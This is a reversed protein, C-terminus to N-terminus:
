GDQPLDLGEFYENFERKAVEGDSRYAFCTDLLAPRPTGSAHTKFSRATGAKVTQFATVAMPGMVMDSIHTCGKSGGSRSIVERRWGPQIKSGILAKYSGAAGTCTTYPSFVTSAEADHVVLEDDITLRIWMEHVPEGASIHGRDVNKFSYSKIDVIHGEIDWLGDDRSFGYCQIKRSHALKRKVPKSLTM